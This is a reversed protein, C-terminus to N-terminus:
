MLGNADINENIDSWTGDRGILRVVHAGEPYARRFLGVHKQTAPTDPLVKFFYIPVRDSPPLTVSNVANKILPDLDKLPWEVLDSVPKSLCDSTGVAVFVHFIYQRDDKKGTVIPIGLPTTPGTESLIDYGDQELRRLLLFLTEETTM